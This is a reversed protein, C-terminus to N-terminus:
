MPPVLFPVMNPSARTILRGSSVSPKKRMFFRMPATISFPQIWPTM